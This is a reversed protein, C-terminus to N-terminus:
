KNWRQRRMHFIQWQPRRNIQEAIGPDRTALFNDPDYSWSHPHHPDTLRLGTFGKVLKYVRYGHEELCRSTPGGPGSLDEFIINEYRGSALDSGVGKLVSLEHGEVDLKMLRVPGPLKLSDLRATRIAFKRGEAMPELTGIGDNEGFHHPLTITADGSHDSLALNHLHAISGPDDGLNQSLVAFLEPLPEFAHLAGRGGLCDLMLRATYGINAGVDLVLDGPRVLRIIMETLPLDYLGFTYLSRGIAQCPNARVTRGWTLRIDVLADVPPSLKCALPRWLRGPQYFYEPKYLRKLLTM